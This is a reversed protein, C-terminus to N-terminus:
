KRLRTETEAQLLNALLTKHDSSSNTKSDLKTTEHEKYPSISDYFVETANSLSQSLPYEELMAQLHRQMLYVFAGQGCQAQRRFSRFARYYIFWDWKKLLYVKLKLLM